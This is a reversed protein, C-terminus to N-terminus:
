AAHSIKHPERNRRLAATVATPGILGRQEQSRDRILEVQNDQGGRSVMRSRETVTSTSIYV